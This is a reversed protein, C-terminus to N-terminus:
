RLARSTSANIHNGPSVPPVRYEDMTRLEFEAAPFSASIASRIEPLMHAPNGAVRILFTCGWPSRSDIPRPFM